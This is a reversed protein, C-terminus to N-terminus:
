PRGGRPAAGVPTLDYCGVGQKLRAYLRGGSVAPSTHECFPIRARGLLRYGQPAAEILYLSRSGFALLKGDALVPSSYGRSGIKKEWAAKGTALEACLVANRWALYVHGGHIVPSSAGNDPQPLSWLKEAGDATMRYTILGREKRGTFVALHDGSVVATSRGGGPVEWAVEGDALRVCAVGRGANCIVFSKGGSRWPVPSSDQGSVKRQRWLATGKGADLASLQGCLIVVKGDAVLPSSHITGGREDPKAKWIERGSDADLCYIVGDSGAAYCRGDAVCPTSSASRGGAAGDYRRKWVTKGDDAGLCYVTDWSKGV